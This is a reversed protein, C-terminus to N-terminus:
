GGGSNKREHSVAKRLMLRRTVPGVALMWDGNGSPAHNHDRRCIELAEQCVLWDKLSAPLSSHHRRAAAHAAMSGATVPESSVRPFYPSADNAGNPVEPKLPPTPIFMSECVGSVMQTKM